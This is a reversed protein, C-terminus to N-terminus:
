KPTDTKLPKYLHSLIYFHQLSLGFDGCNLISEVRESLVTLPLLKHLLHRLQNKSPVLSLSLSIYIYICTYIHVYIYIYIPEPSDVWCKRAQGLLDMYSEYIENPNICKM